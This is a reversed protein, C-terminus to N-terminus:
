KVPEFPSKKTFWKYEICNAEVKTIKDKSIKNELYPIYYPKDIMYNDINSILGLSNYYVKEISFWNYGDNEIEIKECIRKLNDYRFITEKVEGSTEKKVIRVIRNNDDYEINFSKIEGTQSTINYESINGNKDKIWDTTSKKTKKDYTYSSTYSNKNFNIYM